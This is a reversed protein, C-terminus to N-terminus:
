SAFLPINIELFEKVRKIDNPETLDTKIDDLISKLDVPASFESWSEAVPDDLDDALDL